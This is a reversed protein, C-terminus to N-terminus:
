CPESSQGRTHSLIILYFIWISIRVLPRVTYMYVLALRAMLSTTYSVDLFLLIGESEIEVTFQITSEISNLLQLLYQVKGSPVATCTDDVYRKWFPLRVDFSELARDGVDEMVLNAVSVSVPSGMATGFTQQYVGGCVSLYTARLYFKMLNILEDVCLDTRSQISPDSQLRRRTVDIALDIPVNIFLSVADFSVLVHDPQLTQSGIFSM